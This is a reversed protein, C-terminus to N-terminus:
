TSRSSQSLFATKTFPMSPLAWSQPGQLCRPILASRLTGRLNLDLFNSGLTVMAECSAQINDDAVLGKM